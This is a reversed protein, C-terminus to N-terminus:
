IDVHEHWAKFIRKHTESSESWQFLPQSETKRKVRYTIAGFVIIIGLFGLETVPHNFLLCSLMISFLIRISMIVSFVVAGFSKVTYFIFLQGVVSCLCYISLHLTMQPHAYAFIMTSQLEEQHVLTVFSFMASFANIVLMMQLPSIQKNMQFIRTQCQGTFSDFFLFLVLLVLGCVSGKAGYPNDFFDRDLDLSDSSDLFLYIGLGIIAATVYEYTEYSKSLLFKGMLMVPVLKFSKALAQTPFSIYRLAEYQCWSSLMNAVSPFSYEYLPSYVWSIQLWYMFLLSILLGGLRTFFVLGYSFVFYEGDYPYSIMREQLLGCICFTSILGVSYFLARQIVEQKTGEQGSWNASSANEIFVFFSNKRNHLTANSISKKEASTNEEEEADDYDDGILEIGSAVDTSSSLSVDEELYFRVLM